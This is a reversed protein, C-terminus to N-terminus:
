HAIGVGSAIKTVDHSSQDWLPSAGSPPDGTQFGIARELFEDGQTKAWRVGTRSRIQVKALMHRGRASRAYACPLVLKAV